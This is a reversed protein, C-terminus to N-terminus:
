PRATERALRRQLPSLRLLLFLMRGLILAAVSSWVLWLASSGPFSLRSPMGLIPLGLSPDGGTKKATTEVVTSASALDSRSLAGVGSGAPTLDSSPAGVTTTDTSNALTADPATWSRERSAGAGATVVFRTSWYKDLQTVAPPGKTCAIGIVYSGAPLDDGSFVSLNFSPINIIVGPGNEERAVDTFANVYPESTTKFLPQRFQAGVGKPLPGTAGFMLTAPDVGDPVMFSQVRYLGHESDGTCAAGQPLRLSFDTASAGSALPQRTGEAGNGGDIVTAADGSAARADVRGGSLTLVAVCGMLLARKRM